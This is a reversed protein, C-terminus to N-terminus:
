HLDTVDEKCDEEQHKEEAHTPDRVPIFAPPHVREHIKLPIVPRNHPQTIRANHGPHHNQITQQPLQM